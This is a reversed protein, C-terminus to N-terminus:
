SLVVNHLSKIKDISLISLILHKEKLNFYKIQHGLREEHSTSIQPGTQVAVSIDLQTLM